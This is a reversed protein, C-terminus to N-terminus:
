NVAVVIQKCNSPTATASCVFFIYQVQLGVFLLRTQAILLCCVSQQLKEVRMCSPDHLLLHLHM